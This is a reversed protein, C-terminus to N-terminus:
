AWESADEAIDKWGGYHIGDFDEDDEEPYFEMYQMWDEYPMNNKGM